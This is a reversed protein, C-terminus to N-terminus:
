ETAQRGPSTEDYNQMWWRSVEDHTTFVVGDFQKAYGLFDDFIKSRSPRGTIYDHVTLPMLVARKAGREYLADFQSKLINFATKPTNWEWTNFANIPQTTNHMQLSNAADSYHSFPIELFSKGHGEVVYPLDDNWISA